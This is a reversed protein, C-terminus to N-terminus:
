SAFRKEELVDVTLGVNVAMERAREAGGATNGIPLGHHPERGTSPNESLRAKSWRERNAARFRGARCCATNNTKYTEVSFSGVLAGGGNRPIVEAFAISKAKKLRRVATSAARRWAESDGTKSIGIFVIKQKGPLILTELPKLPLDGSEFLPAAAV